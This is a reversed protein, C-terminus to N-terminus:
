QNDSNLGRYNELDKELQVLREIRLSTPPHSSFWSTSEAGQRRIPLVSLLNLAAGSRVIKPNAGSLALEMKHLGSALHLPAGTLLAGTRDATLERCRSLSFGLIQVAVYITVADTVSLKRGSKDSYRASRGFMVDFSVAELLLGALMSLVSLATSISIDRNVIHGIEHGIIGKLEEDNLVNQLESTVCVLSQKTSRGTAFANPFSRDAIAVRPMKVGANKSIEAVM